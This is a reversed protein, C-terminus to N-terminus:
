RTVEVMGFGQNRKFGMGFRYVNYLDDPEGRLTFSGKFGILNIPRQDDINGVSYPIKTATLKGPVFQIPNTAVGNLSIKLSNLFAEKSIVLNRGSVINEGSKMTTAPHLVAKTNKKEENHLLIPSLTKFSVGYQHFYNPLYEKELMVQALHLKEGLPFPFPYLSTRGKGGRIGNFLALVFRDTIDGMSLNMNVLGDTYIVNDEVKERKYYIAFCFPKVRRNPLVYVENYMEEDARRVAEKILSVFAGHYNPLIKSIRFLLKLRM